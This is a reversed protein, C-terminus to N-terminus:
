AVALPHQHRAVATDRAGRARDDPVEYAVVVESPVMGQREDLRVTAAGPGIDPELDRKADGATFRQAVLPNGLPQGLIGPLLAFAPDHPEIGLLEPMLQRAPAGGRARSTIAAAAVWRPLGVASPADTETRTHRLRASPSAM